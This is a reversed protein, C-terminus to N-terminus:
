SPWREVLHWVLPGTLVSGWYRVNTSLPQGTGVVTFTREIAGVGTSSRAWFEVVSMARCAVHLPNGWLKYSHWEDDVPVEYRFIQEGEHLVTGSM